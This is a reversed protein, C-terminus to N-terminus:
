NLKPRPKDEGLRWNEYDYKPTSFMRGAPQGIGPLRKEVVFSHVITKPLDAAKVWFVLDKERNSLKFIDYAIKDTNSNASHIAVVKWHWRNRNILACETKLGASSSRLDMIILPIFTLIDELEKEWGENQALRYRKEGKPGKPM